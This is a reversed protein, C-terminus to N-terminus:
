EKPAVKLQDTAVKIGLADLSKQIRDLDAGWVEGTERRVQSVYAVSVLYGTAGSKSAHWSVFKGYDFRAGKPLDVVELNELSKMWDGFVDFLVFIV